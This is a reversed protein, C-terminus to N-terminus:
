LERHGIINIKNHSGIHEGTQKNISHGCIISDSLVQEGMGCMSQDTRLESCASLMSNSYVDFLDVAKNWFTCIVSVFLLQKLYCVFYESNPHVACTM